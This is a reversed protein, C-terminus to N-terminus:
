LRSMRNLVRFVVLGASGVLSYFINGIGIGLSITGCSLLMSLYTLIEVIVRFRM